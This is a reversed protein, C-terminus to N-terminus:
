SSAAVTAPASPETVERADEYRMAFVKSVGREPMTVGYIADAAAITRKNHTIIAFQSFKTFQRLMDVFRGINADDLPADLEDLLCFPSPKVMYIAFLLAVATMTKQGGSLLALNRLRTGPPRATIEVGSELPDDSEELALDAEGGGFLKEFTYIFNQRIKEFTEAFLQQSTTNIEDIGALLQDRSSVLDDVQGQLFGHREKLDRYQEIADLNVPGLSDLRSRLERVEAAIEDWAPAELSALDEASPEASSVAAEQELVDTDEEALADVQIRSSPVQSVRWLEKKGNIQDLEVGHHDRVQEAFNELRSDRRALEVELEGRQRRLGEVKERLGSSAERIAALKDEVTKLSARSTELDDMLGALEADISEAEQRADEVERNAEEVRTQTQTRETGIGQLRSESEERQRALDALNQEILSVRQRQEAVELRTQGLAEQASELGKRAEAYTSEANELDGSLSKLRQEVEEQEATHRTHAEDHESLTQALRQQETAAKERRQRVQEGQGRRSRLEAEITSQERAAENEQQRATEAGEEAATLDHQATEVHRSLEDRRANLDQAVQVLKEAEAAREFLGQTKEPPGSVVFGRADRCVGDRTAVAQFDGPLSEPTVETLRSLDDCLYCGALAAQAADGSVVESARVWGEPLSRESLAPARSPAFLTARGTQKERLRALVDALRAPELLAAEAGTGLLSSVGRVWEAPIRLADALAQTQLDGLGLQGDLVAKTGSSVGEHQRRLDELIQQRAANQALGREVEQIAQQATRFTERHHQLSDRLKQAEAAAATKRQEAEAHRQELAEVEGAVRKEESTLSEVEEALESSRQRAHRRREEQRALEATLRNKENEAQSLASRAQRLRNEAEYLAQRAETAATEKDQLLSDADGLRDAEKAQTTASGSAEESLLTLRQNLSAEERDLAQLRSQADEIRQVALAARHEAEERQERREYVRAQTQQLKEYLDHRESEHEELGSEQRALDAELDKLQDTLAKEKGALEAREAQLHAAQHAQWALDLHTLRTKIRRFRIAKTAQRKTSNLQRGVEEIVDQARALNQEVLGLKNLAEKRQAKYRSIGAAEEFISRREAPNTSLIRDIQGQVLFSYSVQGIGTDLFLRQIDKLRCSKGNIFYDSGGDRVVRRGIEVENFATGLQSECDAFVLTVECLGLPKRKDSGQFLVDQMSGGRLSKASQEGLVWRIADAVNSKGCGNPGVIATVGPEFTLRTPDAFSKFGSLRLERLYM